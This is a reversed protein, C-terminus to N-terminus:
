GGREESRRRGREAERRAREAGLMDIDIGLRRRESRLRDIAQDIEHDPMAHLTAQDLHAAGSDKM